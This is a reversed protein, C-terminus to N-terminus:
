GGIRAPGDDPDRDATPMPDDVMAEAIDITLPVSREVLSAQEESPWVNRPYYEQLFTRIEDDTADEIRRLHHNALYTAFASANAGHDPGHREAVCEAVAENHAMVTEWSAERARPDLPVEVARSLDDIRDPDVTSDVVWDRPYVVLVPGNADERVRAHAGLRDLLRERRRELDSARTGSASRLAITLERVRQVLEPDFEGSM